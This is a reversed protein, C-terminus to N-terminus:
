KRRINLNRIGLRGFRTNTIKWEKSDFVQFKNLSPQTVRMFKFRRTYKTPWFYADRKPSNEVYARRSSKRVQGKKTGM